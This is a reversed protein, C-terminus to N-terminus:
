DMVKTALSTRSFYLPLDLAERKTTETQVSSLYEELLEQEAGLDLLDTKWSLDQANGNAEDKFEKHLKDYQQFEAYDFVPADVQCGTNFTPLVVGDGIDPVIERNKHKGNSMVTVITPEYWHLRNRCQKSESTGYKIAKYAREFRGDDVRAGGGSDLVAVFEKMEEKFGELLSHM